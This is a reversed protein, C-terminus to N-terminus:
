QRSSKKKAIKREARRKDAALQAGWYLVSEYSAAYSTRFGLSPIELNWPDLTVVLTRGRYTTQVKRTITKDATLQTM